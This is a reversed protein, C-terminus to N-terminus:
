GQKRKSWEVLYVRSRDDRPEPSQATQRLRGPDSPGKRTRRAETSRTLNGACTECLKGTLIPAGCTDCRLNPDAVGSGLVLRGERLWGYIRELRVGTGAVVEAVSAMRHDRLFERVLDFEKHDEALCKACLKHRPDTFLAKCRVCNRLAM